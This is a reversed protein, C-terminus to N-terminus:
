AAEAIAEIRDLDTIRVRTPTDLCIVGLLRLENLKRSVTEITLGLYDAIDSRTMPLEICADPDASEGALALLFSALKEAASMRGLLLMQARTAALEDRLAQLVGRRMADDAAMAADLDALRHRRAVVDTVAEASYGYRDQCGLGIMGGQGVFRYIQRRGDHIIRCCRVTGSLIEYFHEVRDGEYFLARGRALRLEKAARGGSAAANTSAQRLFPHPRDVMAIAAQAQM